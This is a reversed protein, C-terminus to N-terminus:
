RSRYVQLECILNKEVTCGDDDWKLGRNQSGWLQLCFGNYNPALPDWNSYSLPRGESTWTWMGPGFDYALFHGSTWFDENELGTLILLFLCITKYDSLM